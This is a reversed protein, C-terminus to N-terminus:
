LTQTTGNSMAAQVLNEGGIDGSILISFGNGPKPDHLLVAASSRDVDASTPLPRAGECEQVDAESAGDIVEMAWGGSETGARVDYDHEPSADLCLEQPRSTFTTTSLFGSQSRKGVLTNLHRGPLVEYRGWRGGNVDTGDIALIEAGGRTGISAVQSTPRSSGNYLATTCAPGGSFFIGIVAIKVFNSLERSGFASMTWHGGLHPDSLIVRNRSSAALCDLRIGQTSHAQWGLRSTHLRTCLHSFVPFMPLVRHPQNKGRLNRDASSSIASTSAPSFYTAFTSPGSAM